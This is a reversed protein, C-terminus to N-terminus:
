KNRGTRYGRVAVVNGHRIQFYSRTDHAQRSSMKHLESQIKVARKVENVSVSETCLYTVSWRSSKFRMAAVEADIRATTTRLRDTRVFLYGFLASAAAEWTKSEIQQSHRLPISVDSAGPVSEVTRFSTLLADECVTVRAGLVTATSTGIRFKVGWGLAIYWEEHISLGAALFKADVTLRGHGSEAIFKQLASIGSRRVVVMASPRTPTFIAPLAPETKEVSVKSPLQNPSPKSEQRLEEPQGSRPLADLKEVVDVVTKSRAPQEDKCESRSGNTKPFATRCVQGPHMRRFSEVIEPALQGSANSLLRSGASVLLSATDLPVVIGLLDLVRLRHQFLRLESQSDGFPEAILCQHIIRRVDSRQWNNKSLRALLFEGDVQLSSFLTPYRSEEALGWYTSRLRRTVPLPVRSASSKAISNVWKGVSWDHCTAAFHLDIAEEVNLEPYRFWLYNWSDIERSGPSAEM